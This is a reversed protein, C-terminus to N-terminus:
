KNRWFYTQSAKEISKRGQPDARSQRWVCDIAYIYFMIERTKLPWSVEQLTFSFCYRIGGADEDTMASRRKERPGSACSACVGKTLHVAKGEHATMKTHQIHAEFPRPRTFSKLLQLWTTQNYNKNHADHRGKWPEWKINTPNEREIFPWLTDSVIAGRTGSWAGRGLRKKNM